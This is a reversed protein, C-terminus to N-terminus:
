VPIELAKRQGFIGLPARNHHTCCPEGCPTACSVAAHVHGHSVRRRHALEPPIITSLPAVTLSLACSASVTKECDSQVVADEDPLKLGVDLAPPTFLPEYGGGGGGGAFAPDDPELLLPATKELVPVEFTFAPTPVTFTNPFAGIPGNAPIQFIRNTWCSLYEVTKSEGESEKLISDSTLQIPCASL